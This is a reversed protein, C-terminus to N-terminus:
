GGPTTIRDIRPPAAKCRRRYPELGDDKQGRGVQKTSRLRREIIGSKILRFRASTEVVCADFQNELHSGAGVWLVRPEVRVEVLLVIEQIVLLDEGSRGFLGVRVINGAAGDIFSTELEWFFSREIATKLTPYHDAVLDFSITGTTAGSKVIAIDLHPSQGDSRQDVGSLRAILQRGDGLNQRAAESLALASETQTLWLLAFLLTTM